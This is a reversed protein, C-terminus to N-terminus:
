QGPWSGGVSGAPRGLRCLFTLLSGRAWTLGGSDSIQWMYLDNQKEIKKADSLSVKLIITTSFFNIM